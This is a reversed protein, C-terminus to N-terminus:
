ARANAPGQDGVAPASLQQESLKNGVLDRFWREDPVSPIGPAGLRAHCAIATNLFGLRLLRIAVTMGVASLVTKTSAARDAYVKWEHDTWERNLLARMEIARNRVVDDDARRRTLRDVLEIPSDSIDVVIPGEPSTEEEMLRQVRPRLTNEYMVSMIRVAASLSGWVPLASLSARKPPSSANVVLQLDVAPIIPLSPDPLYIQGPAKAFFTETGLNNFVGGDSLLLHKPPEDDRGGSLSLSESRLRLPPFGIPFAASAYIARSLSVDPDGRGYLPSLVMDRSMYFPEGSTLETACLVHTVKSPPLDSLREERRPLHAGEQRLHSLLQRYAGQQIRQRRFFLLALFYLTMPGAFLADGLWFIGWDWGEIAGILIMLGLFMPSWLMTFAIRFLFRRIGPWFFVGDRAIRATARGALRGFMTAQAESFDGTQAVAVNVISGGSVSSILRVKRHLGSNVLYLLAGLSFFAARVGGGSIAVGISAPEPPSGGPAQPASHEDRGM